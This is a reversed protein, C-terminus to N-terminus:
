HRAVLLKRQVFISKRPFHRKIDYRGSARISFHNNCLQCFAYSPGKESQIVGKFSLKYEELWTQDYKVKKTPTEMKSVVLNNFWSTDFFILQLLAIYALLCSRKYM